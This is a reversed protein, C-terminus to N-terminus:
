FDEDKGKAKKEGLFLLVNGGMLRRGRPDDPNRKTWFNGVLLDAIGDNNWDTVAFCARQGTALVKGGIRLPVGASLVPEGSAASNRYFTIGGRGSGVLLDSKGDGDWDYLFPSPRFPFGGKPPLIVRPARFDPKGRTGSNQILVMEGSYGALIDFLGDGDWDALHIKAYKQALAHSGPVREYRRKGAADQVRRSTPGTIEKGDARVRFGEAL